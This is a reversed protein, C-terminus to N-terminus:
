KQEVGAVLAENSALKTGYFDTAPTAIGFQATLNM